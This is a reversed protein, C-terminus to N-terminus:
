TIWLGGVNPIDTGDAYKTEYQSGEIQAWTITGYGYVTSWNTASQYDYATGDGLHDYMAKPIYITGGAKGSAFPTNTFANTHNLPLVGNSKRIILTTMDNDEQFTQNPIKNLNAGLDAFLLKSKINYFVLTGMTEIKPLVVCTIGTCGQFVREALTNVNNLNLAGTIGTCNAFASNTSISTVSPGFSLKTIKIREQFKGKIDAVTFKLEGSVDGTSIEDLYFAEGEVLDGSHNVVYYEKRVSTADATVGTVDMKTEGNIIVKSIGM